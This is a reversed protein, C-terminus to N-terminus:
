SAAAEQTSPSPTGSAPQVVQAAGSVVELRLASVDGLADGDAQCPVPRASHIVIDRGTRRDVRPESRTRLLVGAVMRLVDGAHRPSAVLVDLLGDSGAAHPFLPVGRTLEGLNGVAVLSADRALAGGDVAVRTPVPRARFHRLGALVYGLRGFCKLRQSADAVVAADAGVGAMVAAYGQADADLDTYRILDLPRPAGDLANEVAPRLRLPLRLNRALLNGTGAPLLGVPVGTDRLAGLVMRVTGDGGAVLVREAGGDLAAEAQGAGPDTVTTPLYRAPPLGRAALAGDVLARFRTARRVRAPNVVVTTRM